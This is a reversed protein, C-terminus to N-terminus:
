RRTKDAFQKEKEEIARVEIDSVDVNYAQSSRGVRATDTYEYAGANGDLM